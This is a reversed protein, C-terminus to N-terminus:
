CSLHESSLLFEPAKYGEQLIWFRMSTWIWPLSETQFKADNGRLGSGQLILSQCPGHKQLSSSFSDSGFGGILHMFVKQLIFISPTPM